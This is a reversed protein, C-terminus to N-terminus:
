SVWSQGWTRPRGIDAHLFTNYGGFGKFGSARAAALMAMKDRGRTSQDGAKGFKHMSLPAGGVMANWIPCRYASNIKLPHGLRDREAQLADMFHEDVLLEGCHSCAIEQPMFNPWRWYGLPIDKWHKFKKITLGRM